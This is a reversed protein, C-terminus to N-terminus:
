ESTLFVVFTYSLFHSSQDQLQFLLPDNMELVYSQIFISIVLFPKESTNELELLPFVCFKKKKKPRKLAAGAAYLPEWPLPRIAALRCWLWLLALDSSGRHGVGCSM